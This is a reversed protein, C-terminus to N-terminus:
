SRSQPGALATRTDEPSAERTARRWEANATAHHRAPSGGRVALWAKTTQPNCPTALQPCLSEILSAPIAAPPAPRLAIARTDATAQAAVCTLASLALVLGVTNKCVDGLWHV